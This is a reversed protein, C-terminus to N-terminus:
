HSALEKVPIFIELTWIPRMLSSTSELGYHRGFQTHVTTSFSSRGNKMMAESLLLAPAQAPSSEGILALAHKGGAAIRVVNTMPPPYYVAEGQGWAVITGDSKLALSYASNAAIAIVNTFGVPVATRSGPYGWAVVSGDGKLAVSHIEGAAVAVVNSM